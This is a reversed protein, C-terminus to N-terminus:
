LLACLPNDEEGTKCDFLVYNETVLVSNVDHQDRITETDGTFRVPLDTPLSMLIHILDFVTM